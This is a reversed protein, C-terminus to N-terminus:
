GFNFVLGFFASSFFSEGTGAGLRVGGLFVNSAFPERDWVTLELCVSDLDSHQLGCYTFTHNWRPNVARKVVATKHKTSKKDDPLLYRICLFFLLTLKRLTLLLLSLKCLASYISSFNSSILEGKSLRTM